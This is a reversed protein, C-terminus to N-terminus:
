WSRIHQQVIWPIVVKTSLWGTRIISDELKVGKSASIHIGDTNPSHASAIVKLHSAVVRLCKTFAMHMQQSNVVMLNKVNLSKCRHFIIAQMITTMDYCSIFIMSHNSTKGFHYFQCASVILDIFSCSYSWFCLIVLRQLMNAHSGHSLNFGCNTCTFSYEVSILKLLLVATCKDLQDQLVSGVMEAGDWQNHRGRRHIPTESWPLLDM